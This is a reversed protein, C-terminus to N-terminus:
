APSITIGLEERWDVLPKSWQEEWKQALFPKAKVGSRYGRAVCDLVNDLDTPSKSLTSLLGGALLILCMTRHTQALEFSKLGLEGAIDTGFGAVIHWIDHTQRMRLFMYSIDDNVEVKRYFNPDFNSNKIYTAYTHGLSDTPLTLLVDIDVPPPMYRESILQDIQPDAKVFELSLQTAKTNRLGDEIDYVSETKTPDRFLSIAGKVALLFDLQLLQRNIVAMIIEEIPYINSTIRL